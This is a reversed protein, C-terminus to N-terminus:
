KMSGDADRKEYPVVREQSKVTLSSSSSSSSSTSTTTWAVSQSSETIVSGTDKASEAKKNRLEDRKKADIVKVYDFPCHRCGSGCCKGRKTHSYATFVSYGTAPDIYTEKCEACAKQHVEEIDAIAQKSLSM